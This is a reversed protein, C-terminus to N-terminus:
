RVVIKRYVAVHNVLLQAFYIGPVVKVNTANKLNWTWEHEGIPLPQNLLKKLVQGKVDLICVQVQSTKKLDFNIQVQETAPNPFITFTQQEFVSALDQISTSLEAAIAKTKWVGRGMTGMRITSDAAVFDIDFVAVIPLNNNFPCWSEGADTSVYVGLDTGLYINDATLPSVLISRVPIDPLNHTINTWSVGNDYSVKVHDRNPFTSNRTAYITNEDHPSAELATVGFSPISADGVDTWTEGADDSRWVNWATSNYSQAYIIDPNFKNIDMARISPINAMSRWLNGGSVTKYIKANSVTYLVSSNRPDMLLPTIWPGPETIGNSIPFASAAGAGMTVSKYPTGLQINGYLVNDNEHDIITMIGDNTSYRKWETNEDANTLKQFGHDHFGGIMFDPNTESTAISYTQGIILNQSKKHWYDGNNTSKQVGGDNCVYVTTPETPHFDIDWQDVYVLGGNDPGSGNSAYDKWTWTTGGDSSKWFQVGGIMVIDPNFPSVGITNFQWGSCITNNSPQCLAHPASNLKVWSAGGDETKYVGVLGFGQSHAMHAYLINPQSDCIAISTRFIQNGSPIGNNLTTWTEGGNTSKQVGINQVGAYLTSPNQKDIVLNYVRASTKQTWNMGGDTSVWFGNTAALYVKDPVLADWLLEYTSQNQAFTYTYSTSQWTAGGDMSKLVGVGSALTFTPIQGIGTGILIENPNQPNIAVASVHMSPLQDTLSVWSDGSNTSKWLGGSGSGGYLTNSDNPDITLCLMRGALTDMTNPGLNTWVPMLDPGGATMQHNQSKEFAKWRAAPSYTKALELREKNFDADTMEETNLEVANLSPSPNQAFVITYFCSVFLWLILNKKPQNKM